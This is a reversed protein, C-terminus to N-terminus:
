WLPQPENFCNGAQLSPARDTCSESITIVCNGNGEMEMCVFSKRSNRRVSHQAVLKISHAGRGFGHLFCAESNNASGQHLSPHMIEPQSPRPLLLIRGAPTGTVGTPTTSFGNNARQSSVTNGHASQWPARFNLVSWQFSNAVQRFNPPLNQVNMQGALYTFQLGRVIQLISFTGLATVTAAAPGAGTVILCRNRVSVREKSLKLIFVSRDCICAAILSRYGKEEPAPTDM